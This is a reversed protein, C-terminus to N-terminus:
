KELLIARSPAADIGTVKIPLCIIDYNKEETDKLRLNDLCIINEEMFIKHINVEGNREFSQYDYGILKIGLDRLYQAAKVSLAVHKPNYKEMPDYSNKTKLLIRQSTINHKKLDEVMIYDDVDCLDIVQCDGMLIEFPVEDSKWKENFLYFPADIHTGAHSGFDLWTFNIPAEPKRAVPILKPQDDDVWVITKENLEMSIDIIKM